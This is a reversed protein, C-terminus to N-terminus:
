LVSGAPYIICSFIVKTILVLCTFVMLSFDLKLGPNVEKKAKFPGRMKCKIHLMIDKM